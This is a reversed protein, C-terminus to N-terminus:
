FDRNILFETFYIIFYQYVVFDKCTFNLVTMCHPM